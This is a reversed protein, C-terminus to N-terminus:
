HLANQEARILKCSEALGLCEVAYTRRALRPAKSPRHDAERTSGELFSGSPNVEAAAASM